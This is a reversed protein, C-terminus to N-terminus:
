GYSFCKRLVRLFRNGEWSAALLPIRRTKIPIVHFASQKQPRAEAACPGQLLILQLSDVMGSSCRRLQDQDCLGAAASKHALHTREEQEKRKPRLQTWSHQNWTLPPALELELEHGPSQPGIPESWSWESGPPAKGCAKRFPAGPFTRCM